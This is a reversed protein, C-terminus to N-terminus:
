AKVSFGLRTMARDLDAALRDEARAEIGQIAPSVHRAQFAGCQTCYRRQYPGLVYRTSWPGYEHVHESM